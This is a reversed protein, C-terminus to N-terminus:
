SGGKSQISEIAEELALRIFRWERCTLTETLLDEYGPRNKPDLDEGTVKVVKRHIKAMTKVASAAMAEWHEALM